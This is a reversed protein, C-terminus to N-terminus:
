WIAVETKLFLETNFPYWFNARWYGVILFEQYNPYLRGGLWGCFGYTCDDIMTRATLTTGWLFTHQSSYGLEYDCPWEGNPDNTVRAIGFPWYLTHAGPDSQYYRNAYVNYPCTEDTVLLEADSAPMLGLAEAFLKNLEADNLALVYVGYREIAMDEAITAVADFAKAKKYEAASYLDADRIGMGYEEIRNRRLARWAETMVYPSFSLLEKYMAEDNGYDPSGITLYRAVFSDVQAQDADLAFARGAFMTMVMMLGFVISKMIKGM